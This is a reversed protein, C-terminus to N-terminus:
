GRMSLFVQGEADRLAESEGSPIFGENDNWSGDTGQVFLSIRYAGDGHVLYEDYIEFTRAVGAPTASFSAVLTGIGVGYDEGAKTARCEFAQYAADASFTVGIYDYGPAASLKAGTTEFTVNPAGM